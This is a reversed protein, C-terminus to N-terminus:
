KTGFKKDYEAVLKYDPHNPNDRLQEIDYGKYMGGDGEKVLIKKAKKM